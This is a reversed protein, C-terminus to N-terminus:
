FAGQSSKVQHLGDRYDASYDHADVCKPSIRGKGEEEEGEMEGRGEERRRRGGKGSGEPGGM